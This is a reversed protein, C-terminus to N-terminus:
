VIGLEEESPRDDSPPMQTYYQMAASTIPPEARSPFATSDSVPIRKSRVSIKTEPSARVVRRVTDTGAPDTTIM